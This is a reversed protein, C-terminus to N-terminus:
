DVQRKRPAKTLLGIAFLVLGGEFAPLWGNVVVHGPLVDPMFHLTLAPLIWFSLLWLPILILLGVGLTTITFAASFVVALVDVFWGIIGFLLSAGIALMFNGKFDIGPIMPLVFAFAVATLLIRVLFRIM